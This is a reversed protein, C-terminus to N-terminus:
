VGDLASLLRPVFDAFTPFTERDDEFEALRDYFLRIYRFGRDEHRSLTREAEAVGWRASVMRAEAARIIHEEVAIRWSGYAQGGSTMDKAIAPYLHVYSAILEENLSLAPKVLTHSWEHVLLSWLGSDLDSSSTVLRGSIVAVACTWGDEELTLAYNGSIASVVVVYASHGTGYYAKLTEPVSQPLAGKIGAVMADYDEQHDQLYSGFDADAYFARLREGLDLLRAERDRRGIGYTRSCLYDGFPFVQELGPPDSFCSAFKAVADYSLGRRHVFDMATVAAHSRYDKFHRLADPGLVTRSGTVEPARGTLGAVVYALEIKPSVIVPIGGGPAGEFAAKLLSDEYEGLRGPRADTSALPEGHPDTEPPRVFGEPGVAEGGTTTVRWDESGEPRELYIDLLIDGLRGTEVVSWVIALGGSGDDNTSTDQGLILYRNIGGIARLNASLMEAFAAEDMDLLNSVAFAGAIDGTM